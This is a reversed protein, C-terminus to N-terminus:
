RRHAKSISKAPLSVSLGSDHAFDHFLRYFQLRDETTLVAAADATELPYPYGTGVVVEARLLDLAGDLVGAELM